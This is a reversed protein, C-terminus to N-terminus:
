AKEKQILDKHVGRDRKCLSCKQIDKKSKKVVNSYGLEKLARDYKEKLRERREPKLNDLISSNELLDAVKVVSAMSNAKIKEIYVFYDDEKRHTLCDVAEIINSPFGFKELDSLTLHTTDEIVDHLLAAIKAYKTKCRFSVRIPHNIYPEAHDGSGYTQGTHARVALLLAFEYMDKWDNSKREIYEM